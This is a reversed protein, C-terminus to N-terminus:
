IIQSMKNRHRTHTAPKTLSQIACSMGVCTHELPCKRTEAKWCLQHIRISNTLAGCVVCASDTTAQIARTHAYTCISDDPNTAVAQDQKIRVPVWGGVLLCGRSHPAIPLFLFAKDIPVFVSLWVGVMVEGMGVCVGTVSVSYVGYVSAVWMWVLVCRCGSM